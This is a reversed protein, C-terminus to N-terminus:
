HQYESIGVDRIRRYEGIQTEHIPAPTWCLVRADKTRRDARARVSFSGKDALSPCEQSKLSV